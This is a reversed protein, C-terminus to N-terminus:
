VCSLDDISKKAEWGCRSVHGCQEGIPFAPGYDGPRQPLGFGVAYAYGHRIDGNASSDCRVVSKKTALKHRHQRGTGLDHLGVAM